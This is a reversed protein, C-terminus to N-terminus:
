PNVSSAPKIVIRESCEFATPGWNPTGRLPGDVTLAPSSTSAILDALVLTGALSGAFILGPREGVGSKSRVLKLLHDIPLALFLAFAPFISVAQRAYGYFLLAILVKGLIILLWLGGIRRRITMVVGTGFLGLVAVEWLVPRPYMTTLDVARREGYPGSPLNFATYGLTIGDCFNGLKLGLNTVWKGLDSGIYKLGAQYGHNLLYLHDPHSLNAVHDAVGPLILASNSYGGAADPHNAIAFDLPGKLSLLTWARLPEPTSHFYERFLRHVDELTVETRGDVGVLNTLVYSSSTRVFAPLANMATQAEPSWAVLPFNPPANPVRVHSYDIPDRVVTNFRHIANAGHISWPICLAAAGGTMVLLM